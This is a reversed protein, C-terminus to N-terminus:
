CTKRIPSKFRPDTAADDRTGTAATVGERGGDKDGEM